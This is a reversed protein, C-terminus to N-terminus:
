LIFIYTPKFNHTLQFAICVVVVVVCLCVCVCVCVCVCLCVCVNSCGDSHILLSYWLGISCVFRNTLIDSIGQIYYVSLWEFDCGLLSHGYKMNWQFDCVFALECFMSFSGETKKKESYVYRGEPAHKSVCLNSNGDHHQWYFEWYESVSKHKQSTKYRKVNLM